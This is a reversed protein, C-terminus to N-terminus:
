NMGIICAGFFIAALAFAITSIDAPTIDSEKGMRQERTILDGYNNM